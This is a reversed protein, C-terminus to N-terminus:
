RVAKPQVARELEHAARALRPDAPDSAALARLREALEALSWPATPCNADYPAIAHM